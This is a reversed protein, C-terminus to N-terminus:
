QLNKKQIKVTQMDNSYPLHKDIYSLVGAIQKAMQMVIHLRTNQLVIYEMFGSVNVVGTIHANGISPLTKKLAAGPKIPTNATIISGISKTKGLCADVAVIFAESHRKKIEKLKDELNVAHVPEALTGYVFLRPTKIEEMFTGTMPGLSDGTSRDTGICIVVIENSAYPIWNLITEGMQAKLLPDDFHFRHESKSSFKRKLNM